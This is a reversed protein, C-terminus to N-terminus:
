RQAEQWAALIKRPNCWSHPQRPQLSSIALLVPGNAGTRIVQVNRPRHGSHAEYCDFVRWAGRKGRFTGIEPHYTCLIRYAM